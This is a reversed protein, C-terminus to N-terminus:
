SSWNHRGSNKKNEDSTRLHYSFSNQRLRLQKELHLLLTVYRHQINAECSIERHKATTFITFVDYSVLFKKLGSKKTQKKSRELERRLKKLKLSSLEIESFILFVRKLFTYSLKTKGFYLFTKKQSFILVKKRTKKNKSSLHEKRFHLFIILRSLEM